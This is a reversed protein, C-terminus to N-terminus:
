HSKIEVSKNTLKQQPRDEHMKADGFFITRFLQETSAFTNSAAFTFANLITASNALEKKGDGDDHNNTDNSSSADRCYM